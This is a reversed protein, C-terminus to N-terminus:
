YRIWKADGSKTQDNKKNFSISLVIFVLVLLNLSSSYFDYFWTNYANYLAVIIALTSFLRSLLGYKEKGM